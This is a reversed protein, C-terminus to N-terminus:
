TSDATQRGEVYMLRALVALLGISGTAFVLALWPLPAMGQARMRPQLLFWAVLVALLLDFWVQNGWANVTHVPWFGTPGERVVAVVSGVAFLGSAVAPVLWTRPTHLSIGLGAALAGLAGVLAVIEFGTM